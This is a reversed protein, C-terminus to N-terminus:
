RPWIKEGEKIKDTRYCTVLFGDGNLRKVVAVLWYKPEKQYFLFIFEDTSSKRIESPNKITEKVEELKNEIDPHKFIIKQWYKDSTRVTFGLPTLIEFLVPNIKKIGELIISM